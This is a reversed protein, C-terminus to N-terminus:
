AATREFVRRFASVFAKEAGPVGREVDDILMHLFSIHDNAVLVHTNAETSPAAPAATLQSANTIPPASANAQSEDGDRLSTETQTSETLASNAPAMDNTEM